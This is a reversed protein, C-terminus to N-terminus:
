KNKTITINIIQGNNIEIIKNSHMISNERHAVILITWEKLRENILTQIIQETKTDINSTAEDMIVIKNGRVIARWICILQKEGWSLNKGKEDIIQYLRKPDRAILNGLNAQILLEELKSDNWNNIPDINFRLTENFLVDDQSIVTIKKRLHELPIKAINIGDILIFGSNSEVIRSIANVITSKGAGSRGVIAIKEGNEIRLNINKLALELNPQYKLSYNYIEIKGYKPWDELKM